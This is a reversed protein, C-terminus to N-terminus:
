MYAFHVYATTLKAHRDDFRLDISMDKPLVEFLQVQYEGNRRDYVELRHKGPTLRLRRTIVVPPTGGVAATTDLLQVGDIRFEFPVPSRAFNLVAFSVPLGAAYRDAASVGPHAWHCAGGVVAAVLVVPRFRVKKDEM